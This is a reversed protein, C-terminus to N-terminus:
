HSIHRLKKEGILKNHHHLIFLPIIIAMVCVLPLGLLLILRWKFSFIFDRWPFFLFLLGAAVSRFSFAIGLWPVFYIVTFRNHYGSCQGYALLYPKVNEFDIDISFDLRIQTHCDPRCWNRGKRKVSAWEIKNRGFEREDVALGSSIGPIRGDLEAECHSSECLLWQGLGIGKWTAESETPFPCEPM